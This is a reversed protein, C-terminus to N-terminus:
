NSTSADRVGCIAARMTAAARKSRICARERAASGEGDADVRRRVGEGSRPVSSRALSIEAHEDSSAFSTRALRAARQAASGARPLQGVSAADAGVARARCAARLLV